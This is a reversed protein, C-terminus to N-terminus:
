AESAVELALEYAERKGVGLAEAVQAAMRRITAGDVADLMARETVTLTVDGAEASRQPDRVLAESFGEHVGAMLLVQEMGVPM